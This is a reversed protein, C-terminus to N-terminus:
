KLLYPLFTVIKPFCTVLILTIILPILFPIVAKTVREFSIKAISSTVYLLM